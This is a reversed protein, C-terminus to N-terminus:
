DHFLYFLFTVGFAVAWAVCAAIKTFNKVTIDDALAICPVGAGLAVVVFTMLFWVAFVAIVNVGAPLTECWRLFHLM